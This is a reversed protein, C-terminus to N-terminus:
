VNLTLVSSDSSVALTQYWSCLKKCGVQVLQASTEVDEEPNGFLHLSIRAVILFNLFSNSIINFHILSMAGSM